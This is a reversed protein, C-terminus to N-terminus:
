IASDADRQDETSNTNRMQPGLEDEVDVQQRERRVERGDRSGEVAEERVLM